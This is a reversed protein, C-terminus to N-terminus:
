KYSEWLHVIEQETPSLDELEMKGEIVRRLNSKIHVFKSWGPAFYKWETQTLNWRSCPLIELEYRPAYNELMWGLAAQDGALYKHKYKAYVDPEKIIKKSTRAWVELFFKGSATPKIIVIGSNLPHANERMTVAVDWDGSLDDSTVTSTQLMDVDAIIVIDKVDKSMQYANEIASTTANDKTGDGIDFHVRMSASPNYKLVSKRFRSFFETYLTSDQDPEIVSCVYTM